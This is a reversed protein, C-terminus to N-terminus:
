GAIAEMVDASVDFNAHVADVDDNDELADILKLVKRAGDEDLPVSTKPRHAIEASQVEIGAGTLAARVAAVDSPETLVEFVDDDAAIDEAGAECVAIAMPPTSPGGALPAPVFPLDLDAPQLRDAM